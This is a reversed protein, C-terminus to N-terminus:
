TSGLGLSNFAKILPTQVNRPDINFPLLLGFESPIFAPHGAHYGYVSTPWVNAGFRQLTHQAAPTRLERWGHRQTDRWWGEPHEWLQQDDDHFARECQTFLLGSFKDELHGQAMDVTALQTALNTAGWQICFLVADTGPLYEDAKTPDVTRGGQIDRITVPTKDRTRFNYARPEGETAMPARGETLRTWTNRLIGQEDGSTPDLWPILNKRFIQSVAAALLCTKGVGTGGWLQIIRTPTAPM